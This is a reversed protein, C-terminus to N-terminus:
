SRYIKRDPGEPLLKQEWGILPNFRCIQRKVSDICSKEIRLRFVDCVGPRLFTINSQLIGNYCAKFFRQLCLPKFFFGWGFLFGVVFLVGVFGSGARKLHRGDENTDM